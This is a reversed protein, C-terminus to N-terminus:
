MEGGANLLFAQLQVKDSSFNDMMEKYAVIEQEKEETQEQLKNGIDMQRFCTWEPFEELEESTTTALNEVEGRLDQIVRKLADMQRQLARRDQAFIAELFGWAAGGVPQFIDGYTQRERAATAARADYTEQLQHLCNGAGELHFELVYHHSRLAIPSSAIQLSKINRDLEQLKKEHNKAEKVEQAKCMDIMQQVAYHITADASAQKQGTSELFQSMEVGPDSSASMPIIPKKEFDTRATELDKCVQQVLQMNEDGWMNGVRAEAFTIIQDFRELTAVESGCAM